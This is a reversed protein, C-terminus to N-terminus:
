SRHTALALASTVLYVRVQDASIEGLTPIGPAAEKVLIGVRALQLAGLGSAYLTNALLHPDQVHFDGAAVGDELVGTLIVLCSSIARGLRFLAGESIEDLLEPGSRRMLAQACDVFAPHAVGYEVFATVIAELRVAPAADSAGAAELADRLEELYGVLTLAFLEEKGTFHRYVIARNIGVAKAIDDIQADRVGRQDFLARTAAIIEAERKRRRVAAASRRGDTESASTPM